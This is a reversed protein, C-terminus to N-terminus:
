HFCWCKPSPFFTFRTTLSYFTFFLFILLSYFFTFTTLSSSFLLVVCTASSRYKLFDLRQVLGTSNEAESSHVSEGATYNFGFLSWWDAAMVVFPVSSSLSALISLLFASHPISPFLPPLFTPHFAPTFSVIRGFLTQLPPQHAPHNGCRSQNVGLSSGQSSVLYFCVCAFTHTHVCVCM